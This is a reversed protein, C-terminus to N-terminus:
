GNSNEDGDDDDGDIQADEKLGASIVVVTVAKTEEIRGHRAGLAICPVADEVVSAVVVSAFRYSSQSQM